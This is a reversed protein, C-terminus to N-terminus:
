FYLHTCKLTHLKGKKDAQEKRADRAKQWELNIEITNKNLANVVRDESSLAPPLHNKEVKKLNSLSLSAVRPLAKGMEPDKIKDFLGGKKEKVIPTPTYLPTPTYEAPAPVPAPVPVPEPVKESSEAVEASSPDPVPTPVPSPVPQLVPEAVKVPPQPFLDQQEMPAPVPEPIKTPPQPFLDQSISITPQADNNRVLPASEIMPSPGRLPSMALGGRPPSMGPPSVGGRPPSMGPPSVPPEDFSHRSENFHNPSQQEFPLSQPPQGFPGPSPNRGFNSGPPQGFPGPSPNRGFNGGPPQGFNSSPPRGFDGGPPPQQGFNSGGIPKGFDSPAQDYKSWPELGPITTNQSEWPSMLKPVSNTPAFINPNMATTPKVTRTPVPKPLSPVPKPLNLLGSIAPTSASNSSGTPHLPSHDGGPYPPTHPGIGMPSSPRYEDSINGDNGGPDDFPEAESPDFTWPAEVKDARNRNHPGGQPDRGGGSFGGPRGFDKPATEYQSWSNPMPNKKVEHYFQKYKEHRPHIFHPQLESKSRITYECIMCRFESQNIQTLMKFQRGSKVSKVEKSLLSRLDLDPPTPSPKRPMQHKKDGKQNNKEVYQKEKSKELTKMGGIVGMIDFSKQAPKEMAKVLEGEFTKKQNFPQNHGPKNKNGYSNNYEM